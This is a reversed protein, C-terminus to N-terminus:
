IVCFTKLTLSGRGFGVEGSVRDRTAAKPPAKAKADPPLRTGRARPTPVPLSAGARCRLEQGAGPTGLGGSAARGPGLQVGCGQRYAGNWEAGGVRPVKLDKQGVFDKNNL